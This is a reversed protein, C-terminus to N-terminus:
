RRTGREGRRLLRDLNLWGLRHAGYIGVAVVCAAAIVWFTWGPAEWIGRGVGRDPRRVIEPAAPPSALLLSLLSALLRSVLLAPM